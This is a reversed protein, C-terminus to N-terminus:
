VVTIPQRTGVLRGSAQLPSVVCRRTACQHHKVTLVYHAGRQEVLYTAHGRQAHLADATVVADTLQIRDLLTSFLPIENTKAEVNVQGLVIGHTHDLAALLHRGPDEGGRSGRLTKGDVAIVRRRDPPPMSRQQAWAGLRDDFTDGDLRQLTRRITSEFPVAGAIGLQRRPRPTPTLPWEAIAVFSRAGALVVCVAVTL